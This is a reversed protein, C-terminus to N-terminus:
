GGEVAEAKVVLANTMDASDRQFTTRSKSMALVACRWFIGVFSCGTQANGTLSASCCFLM